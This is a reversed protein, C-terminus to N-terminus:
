TARCQGASAATAPCPLRGNVSVFAMLADRAKALTNRTEVFRRQEAQKALSAVIGVTSLGIISLAIAVEILSFGRQHRSKRPPKM